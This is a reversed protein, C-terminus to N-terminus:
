KKREGWIFQTKDPANTHWYWEDYVCRVYTTGPTSTIEVKGGPKPVVIDTATWYYGGLNFLLPIKGQSSLTAAYEIESNTPIRWRGAPYGDEQYSACRRFAAARDILNYSVGYSSAFRLKPTIMKRSDSSANTPLYRSTLKRNGGELAAASVSWDDYTNSSAVRPDGVIYDSDSTLATVTIVYMNPNRNDGTLGRVSYEGQHDLKNGNIIVYGKFGPTGQSAGYGSNLDAIIYMMPYQVITIDEAYAGNDRHKIRFTITFPAYDFDTDNENVRNKLVHNVTIHGPHETLSVNYGASATVDQVTAINGTYDWTEVKLSTIDVDHSSSYPITVTNVNNMELTNRDVVLYRYKELNADVHGNGWALISCSPELEVADEPSFNGLISVKLRVIYCHNREYKRGDLNIPIQYYCTSYETAGSKKWPVLLVMYSEEPSNKTWASPYSYFPTHTYNTGDASLRRAQGPDFSFYDASQVTYPSASADVHTKKVGKHFYVRMDSANSTWVYGSEDTVSGAVETVVLRIRSAARYLPVSAAASKGDSSLTATAEGDMVFSNQKGDDVNSAFGDASIELGKLNQVSTVAPLTVDDPLNAIVYVECTTVGGAFLENRKSVPVNVKLTATTGTSTIGTAVRAHYKATAGTEGNKYLFCDVTWVVNENLATEGPITGSVPGRTSLDRSDLTLTISGEEPSPTEFSSRSCGVVALLVIYLFIFKRKM